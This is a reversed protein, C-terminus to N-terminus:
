LRELTARLLRVLGDLADRHMIELGHSNEVPVALTIPRACHGAAAACSADSGGRTLVHFDVGTGAAAAADAVTQLDEPATPAFGDGAWCTPVPGLVLDNDPAIPAIELAICIEPRLGGLLWLAGHGGLEESTTAAFLVDDHGGDAALRHLALLWAACDVRDDLFPAARFCGGAGLPIVQRREQSLVIRTGPRLASPLDERPVGTFIRADEWSPVKGDRARQIVSAPHTTHISGFSLIGALPQPDVLIDVPAEGWKWPHAGGLPGVALSGDPEIRRVMLAIEDLHATVVVRPTEPWVKGPAALLNGRADIRWAIGEADLRRTLVDRVPGEAGPPGPARVLEALLSEPSDM